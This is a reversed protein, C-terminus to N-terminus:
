DSTTNQFIHNFLGKDKPIFNFFLLTYVTFDFVLDIFLNLHQDWIIVQDLTPQLCVFRILSFIAPKFMYVFFLIRFNSFIKMHQYAVGAQPTLGEDVIRTNILVINFNTAMLICICAIAHVLYRSIDFGSVAVEVFGMLICVLSISSILQIEISSLSDRLIRWGLSLLVLLTLIYIEHLRKFIHSFAWIYKPVKDSLRVIYIIVLDLLLFTTYLLYNLSLCYNVKKVNSEVFFYLYLASIVFSFLYIFFWLTFIQFHYKMELPLNYSNLNEFRVYGELTMRRQDPNFLLLIYRDPQDSVYQFTVTDGVKTIPIRLKSIVNSFYVYGRGNRSPQVVDYPGNSLYLQWQSQSFLILYANDVILEEDLDHPTDSTTTDKLVRGTTTPNTNPPTVPTNIIAKNFDKENTTNVNDSLTNNNNNRHKISHYITQILHLFSHHNTFTNTSRNRNRLSISFLPRKTKRKLRNFQLMNDLLVTSTGKGINTNTAITNTTDTTTAVPTDNTHITNPTNPLVLDDDIEEITAIKIYGHLRGGSELSFYYPPVLLEESGSSLTPFDCLFTWIDNGTNSIKSLDMIYSNIPWIFASFVWIWLRAGLISKKLFVYFMERLGLNITLDVEKFGDDQLKYQLVSDTKEIPNGFKQVLQIEASKLFSDEVSLNSRFNVEEMLSDCGTILDIAMLIISDVILDSVPGSTVHNLVVAENESKLDVQEYVSKLVKVLQELKHPFTFTMKQNLSSVPLKSFEKVDETYLLRVDTDKVLVGSLLEDVHEVSDGNIGNTNKTNTNVSNVDNTTTNSLEHLNSSLSGVADVFRQPTFTLTIEQLVEPMFVTLQRIDEELKDKMRKMENREGHVLIVNPVSLKKIFDKTQNYDAHASFSIQEVSCRPKVVKNGLNIFEPDKKLEDALTGKVTYGTLVVGNRNDPCILEFVELSPGGQLMGPSTMIICPGDRLLYNRIQKISRAYKVFKFDFPNFGNYVSQKIYDGCQGVFTEYVRLSKSALPSIYFIPVNHLQRNNEWYNDLILLIEQSRGLAFVPLLCKGERMIIDMVVHLFRMERQSREEHVRIGYTSESILLHVNTSPIEASPLHKDKEVSYDGTYLIRVGDIEVLFMCAGLVHGARYCSIKIDNVTFEQHFDITEIRDLAYEVDEFSYLGSGCVLEDMGDDDDFITKVTLLQEMRAYDTWLLHCISKSAPTMLIRGNFKTKSLLYPVAGCHDLHFHTVLCVEVKSIDVAEFVPLAGVGSLAPHLGCDFMLCSNDREVYVCSRGVECGAGLVTIRVRDDM